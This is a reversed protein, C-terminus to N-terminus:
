DYWDWEKQDLPILRWKPGKYQYYKKDGQTKIQYARAKPFIEANFFWTAGILPM